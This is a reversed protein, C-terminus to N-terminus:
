RHASGKQYGQVFTLGAAFFRRAREASLHEAMLDMGESNSDPLPDSTKMSM